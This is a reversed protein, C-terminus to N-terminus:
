KRLPWYVKFQADDNRMAEIGSLYEEFPRDDTDAGHTMAWARLVDRIRPLGPAPGTFTTSALHRAPLQVYSVPGEMSLNMKEGAPQGEPADAKRVPQVVDFAYTDSTFETTVIRMPGDAVLGNAAMVKDIWSKQNTMQIEIEDNSRKAATSVVLADQMPMDVFSFEGSHQSYDFKPITALLTSFKDLGRKVDDGINRNVYLGAYRGLLDWGYNVRYEQTIKVNRNNQGTREFKVTMTKDAGRTPGTLRYKIMRGPVADVIEWSGQGIIRDRSTYSFKAGKGMAPGTIQTRANKDYRLLPNWDKFRSFGDFLDYVTSMPRNTEISYTYIRRSPLFLAIVVFLAVVILLSIVFEIFRVM